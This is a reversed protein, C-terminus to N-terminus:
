ARRAKAPMSSALMQVCSQGPETMARIAKNAANQIMGDKSSFLFPLLGFDAPAIKDNDAFLEDALSWHGGEDRRRICEGTFAALEVIGTWGDIEEEETDLGLDRLRQEFASLGEGSIPLGERLAVGHALATFAADAIEAPTRPTGPYPIIEPSGNAMSELEAGTSAIAEAVGASAGSLAAYRVQAPQGDEGLRKPLLTRVLAFLVSIEPTEDMEEPSRHDTQIFVKRGDHEAAM